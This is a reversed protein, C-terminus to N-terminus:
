KAEGEDERPSTLGHARACKLCEGTDALWTRTPNGCCSCYHTNPNPVEAVNIRVPDQPDHHLVQIKM